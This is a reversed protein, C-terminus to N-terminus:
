RNLSSRKKGKKKRLRDDCRSQIADIHQKKTTMTSGYQESISGGYMHFTYVHQLMTKHKNSYPAELSNLKVQICLCSLRGQTSNTCHTCRLAVVKKKKLWKLLPFPPPLMYHQHFSNLSALFCLYNVHVRGFESVCVVVHGSGYFPAFDNNEGHIGAKEGEM